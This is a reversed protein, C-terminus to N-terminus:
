VRHMGEMACVDGCALLGAQRVGEQARMEGNTHEHEDHKHATGSYRGQSHLAADLRLSRCCACANHLDPPAPVLSCSGDHLARAEHPDM